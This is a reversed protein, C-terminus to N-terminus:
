NYVSREYSKFNLYFFRSDSFPIINEDIQTLPLGLERLNTM